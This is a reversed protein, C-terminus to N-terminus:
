PLAQVLRPQGPTTKRTGAVEGHWEANRAIIAAKRAQTAIGCARTIINLATREGILLKNVPGTVKAVDCVPVIEDGERMLWEVSCGLEEFVAPALPNLLTLLFVAVSIPLFHAAV